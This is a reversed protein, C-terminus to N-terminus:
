RIPVAAPKLPAAHCIQICVRGCNSRQGFRWGSYQLRTGDATQAPVVFSKRKEIGGLSFVNLSIAIDGKKLAELHDPGLRFIVAEGLQEGHSNSRDTRPYLTPRVSGPTPYEVPEAPKAPKAPKVTRLPEVDRNKACIPTACWPGRRAMRHYAETVRKFDISTDRGTADPHTA